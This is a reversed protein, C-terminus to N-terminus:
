RIAGLRAHTVTLRARATAIGGALNAADMEKKTAVALHASIKGTLRALQHAEREAAAGRLLADRQASMTEIQAELRGVEVQLGALEDAAELRRATQQDAVDPNVTPGNYVREVTGRPGTATGASLKSDHAELRATYLKVDGKWRLLYQQDNRRSWSGIAAGDVSITGDPKIEFTVNNSRKWTGVIPDTGAEASTWILFLTALVTLRLLPLIAKM